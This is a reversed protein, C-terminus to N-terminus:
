NGSSTEKELKRIRSRIKNEVTKQLDPVLLAARCQDLDFRQVRDLRSAADVAGHGDKGLFPNTEKLAIRVIRHKLQAVGQSHISIILPYEGEKPTKMVTGRWIDSQFPRSELVVGDDNIDWELFDQGNDEFFVTFIAM